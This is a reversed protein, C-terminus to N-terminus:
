QIMLEGQLEVKSAKPSPDVAKAVTPEEWM